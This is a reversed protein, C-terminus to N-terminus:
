ADCKKEAACALMLELDERDAPGKLVSTILGEPTLFYSEPQGTVGFQLATSAGRDFVVGYGADPNQEVWDRVAGDTDDHVVALMEFNPDDRHAAFFEALVPEEQQCPICWTNWFNVYVVKGDLDANTIPAGDLTELTITPRVGRVERDPSPDKGIRTALLVALAAVFVLAGIAINRATHRPTEDSM